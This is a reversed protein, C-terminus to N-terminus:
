GPRQRATAAAEASLAEAAAAELQRSTNRESFFFNSMRIMHFAPTYIRAVNWLRSPTLPVAEEPHLFLNSTRRVHGHGAEEDINIDDGGSVPTSAVMAAAKVKRMYADGAQRDLTLKPTALQVMCDTDLIPYSDAVVPLDESSDAAERDRTGSMLSDSERRVLRTFVCFGCSCIVTAMLFVTVIDGFWMASPFTYLAPPLIEFIDSVDVQSPDLSNAVIIQWEYSEVDATSLGMENVTIRPFWTLRNSRLDGEVILQTLEVLRNAKLSARATVAVKEIREPRLWVVQQTDSVSWQASGLPSLIEIHQVSAIESPLLPLEEQALATSSTFGMAMLIVVLALRLAVVRHGVVSPLLRAM